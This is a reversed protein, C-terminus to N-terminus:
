HENHISTITLVNRFLMQVSMDGNVFGQPAHKFEFGYRAPSDYSDNSKEDTQTKEVLKQKLSQLKYM